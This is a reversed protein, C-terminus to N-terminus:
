DEMDKTSELANECKLKMLTLLSRVTENNELEIHSFRIPVVLHEGYLVVTFHDKTIQFNIESM